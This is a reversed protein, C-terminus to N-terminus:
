LLECEYLSGLKVDPENRCRDSWEISFSDFPNRACRLRDYRQPFDLHLRGYSSALMEGQGARHLNRSLELIKTREDNWGYAM